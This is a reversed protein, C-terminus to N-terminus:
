VNRTSEQWCHKIGVTEGVQFISQKRVPDM